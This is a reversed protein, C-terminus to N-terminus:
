YFGKKLCFLSGGVAPGNSRTFIVTNRTSIGTKKIKKLLKYRHAVNRPLIDNLAVPNYFDKELLKDSINEITSRKNKSYKCLNERTIFPLSEIKDNHVNDERNQYNKVRTLNQLYDTYKVASEVLKDFVDHLFKFSKRTFFTRELITTVNSTLNLLVAHQIQKVKHKHRLPDNFKIIPNFFTPM